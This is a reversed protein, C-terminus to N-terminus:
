LTVSPNRYQATTVIRDARELMFKIDQTAGIRADIGDHLRGMLDAIKEATINRISEPTDRNLPIAGIKSYEVRSAKRNFIKQGELAQQLEGQDPNAHQYVDSDQSSSVEIGDNLDPLYIGEIFIREKRGGVADSTKKYYVVSPTEASSM